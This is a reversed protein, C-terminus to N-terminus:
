RGLEKLTEALPLVKANQPLVSELRGVAKRSTSHQIMNLVTLGIAQNVRAAPTMRDYQGASVVKIGRRAHRGIRKATVMGYNAIEDDNMRRLGQGRVVDFVALSDNLAQM